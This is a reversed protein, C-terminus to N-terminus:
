EAAAATVKPLGAPPPAEASAFISGFLRVNAEALRGAEASYDEFAEQLWNAEADLIQPLSTCHTMRAMAENSRSMRRTVFHTMERNLDVFADAVSKTCTLWHQAADSGARTMAQSTTETQMTATPPKKVENM